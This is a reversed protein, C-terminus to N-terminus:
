AFEFYIRKDNEAVWKGNGMAEVDKLIARKFMWAAAPIRNTSQAYYFLIKPSIKAWPINVEPLECIAKIVEIREKMPENNDAFFEVLERLDNYDYREKM